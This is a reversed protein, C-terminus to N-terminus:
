EDEEPIDYELDVLVTPAYQGGLPTVTYALNLAEDKIYRAVKRTANLPSSASVNVTIAVDYEREEKDM